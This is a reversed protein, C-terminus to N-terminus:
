VGQFDRAHLGRKKGEGEWAEKMLFQVWGLLDRLTWGEPLEKEPREGWEMGEVGVTATASPLVVSATLAGSPLAEILAEIKSYPSAGSAMATTATAATMDKGNSTSSTYPTPTVYSTYSGTVLPAYSEIKVATQKAAASTAGSWLTPGPIQYTSLSTYINILLGPDKAKYFQTAPIAGSSSLDSTGSGSSTINLNICQPYNQAGNTSSASHLAIIEHRLVYSGAALSKPITVSGLSHVTLLIMFRSFSSLMCSNNNAILDDSAWKGPLPEGNVLGEEGIKVFELKTKDVNECSDGPCRAIYDLVPGHHSDPWPTWQLEVTDGASVQAAIGGPTASLHCIIDPSSYSQPSIYGNDIDQPDSWGAVIPIPDRYQFAPNYGPYYTGSAVIGQVYGHASASAIFASLLALSSM